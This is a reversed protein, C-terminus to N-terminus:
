ILALAESVSEGRCSESDSLGHKLLTAPICHPAILVTAVLSTTFNGPEVTGYLVLTVTISM